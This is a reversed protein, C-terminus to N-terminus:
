WGVGWSGRLWERGRGGGSEYGFLHVAFRQVVCRGLRMSSETTDEGESPGDLWGHRGAEGGPMGLLGRQGEDADEETDDVGDETGGGRGKKQEDGHAYGRDGHESQDAEEGDAEGTEDADAQGTVAGGALMVSRLQHHTACDARGTEVISNLQKRPSSPHSARTGYRKEDLLLHTFGLIKSM